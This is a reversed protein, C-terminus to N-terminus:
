FKGSHARLSLIVHLVDFELSCTFERLCMHVDECSRLTVSHLTPNYYTKVVTFSASVRNIRERDCCYLNRKLREMLAFRLSPRSLRISLQVAHSAYGLGM